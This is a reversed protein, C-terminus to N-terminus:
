ELNLSHPVGLHYFTFIPIAQPLPFDLFLLIGGHILLTDLELFDQLISSKPSQTTMLLKAM